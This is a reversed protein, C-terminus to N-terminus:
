LFYTQKKLKRAMNAASNRALLLLNLDTFVTDATAFFLHFNNMKPNHMPEEVLNLPLCCLHAIPMRVKRKLGFIRLNKPKNRLNGVYALGCIKTM